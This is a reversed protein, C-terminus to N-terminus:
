CVCGHKRACCVTNALSLSAKYVSWDSRNYSYIFRETAVRMITAYRVM